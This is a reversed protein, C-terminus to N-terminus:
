YPGKYDGVDIIKDLTDKYTDVYLNKCQEDITALFVESFNHIGQKNLQTKLWDESKNVTKLNQKILKGDYIVEVGIGKKFSKINLDKPTIPNNEPKKLISLKGDSELIGYEVESVDFVGQNRLLELLNSIRFRMKRLENEMIKGNMIVISPEGEMYKAAYKWKLTIIQMFFGAAMWTMLGVWHPWAKSSLDTTLSSATSGITIGLVYDFFTLQSIQQKGLIRAFILLTFFGIIGRVLVVIAENM